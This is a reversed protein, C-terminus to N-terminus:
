LSKAIKYIKPLLAGIDKVKAVVGLDSAILLRMMKIENATIEGSAREVLSKEMVSWEYKKDPLLKNGDADYYLNIEEGSARAVNMLFWVDALVGDVGANLNKLVQDVIEFHEPNDSSDALVNIKKLVAAALEMRELDVLLNSYFTKMKAGTVLGFEGKGYHVNLETLSFMEIGGALKSKEKRVGRAMVTKKGTPTIINLIRDAEGYNTRRLVYALTKEDKGQM